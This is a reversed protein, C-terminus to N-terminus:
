EHEKVKYEEQMEADSEEEYEEHGKVEYEEEMEAAPSTPAQESSSTAHPRTTPDIVEDLNKKAGQIRRMLQTKGIINLM